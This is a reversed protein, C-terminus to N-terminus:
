SEGAPLRALNVVYCALAIAFALSMGLSAGNSGDHAFSLGAGIAAIIAILGIWSTAKALGSSTDMARVVAMVAAVVLLIAMIVHVILWGNSFLGIAKTATPATGYLNYVIGFVFEIILMVVLGLSAMRIRALKAPPTVAAGATRTDSM